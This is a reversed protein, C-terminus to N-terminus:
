ESWFTSAVSIDTTGTVACAWVEEMHDIVFPVVASVRFAGAAGVQAGAQSSSIWIDQDIAMITASKRRPEMPLLKVGVTTGVGQETKYGPVRGPLERTGVPGCVYMPLPRLSYDDEEAQVIEEPEPTLDISM